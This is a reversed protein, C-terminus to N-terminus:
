AFALHEKIVYWTDGLLMITGTGGNWCEGINPCQAEECVTNLNLNQLSEKVVSYRSDPRQSPGPVKFWDPRGLPMEAGVKPRRLDDDDGRTSQMSRPMDVGGGGTSGDGRREIYSAGPANEPNDTMTTMQAPSSPRQKNGGSAAIWGLSGQVQSLVGLVFCLRKVM